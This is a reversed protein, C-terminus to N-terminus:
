AAYRAARKEPIGALGPYCPDHDIWAEDRNGIKAGYSSWQYDAFDTVIGARVPNLEVSRCLGSSLRRYQDHKIQLAGGM